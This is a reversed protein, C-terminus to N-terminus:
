IYQKYMNLTTFTGGEGEERVIKERTEEGRVKEGTGCIVEKTEWEM